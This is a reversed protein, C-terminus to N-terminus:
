LLEDIYATSHILSHAEYKGLVTHWSGLLVLEDCVAVVLAALCKHGACALSHCTMSGLALRKPAPKASL